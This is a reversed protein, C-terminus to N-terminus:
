SCKWLYLCKLSRSKKTAESSPDCLCIRDAAITVRQTMNQEGSPPDLTVRVPASVGTCCDSGKSLRFSYTLRYTVTSNCRRCEFRSKKASDLASQRLMAHGSEFATETKGDPHVAVAVTVDGDINAQHALPPYIPQFLDILVAGKSAQAHTGELATEPVAAPITEVQVEVCSAIYCDGEKAWCYVGIKEKAAGSSKLLVVNTCDNYIGEDATAPRMMYEGPQPQSCSSLGINCDLETPKGQSYAIVRVARNEISSSKVTVSQKDAARLSVALVAIAVFFCM